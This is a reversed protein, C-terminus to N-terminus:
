MTFNCDYTLGLADRVTTFLRGGIVEALMMGACYTALSNARRASQQAFPNGKAAAVENVPDRLAAIQEPTYADQNVFSPIESYLSTMPAWMSPGPGAAVACAREDSDKLWLRQARVPDDKPVEKLKLPPVQPLPPAPKTQISGMFALVM